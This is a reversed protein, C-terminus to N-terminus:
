PKKEKTPKSQIPKKAFPVRHLPARLTQHIWRLLPMTALGLHSGRRDTTISISQVARRDPWLSDIMPHNPMACSDMWRLNPISHLHEINRKELVCGPSFKHLREDYAIKWAFGVDNTLLNCKMAVPTGNLQLSLMDLKQAAFTARLMETTFGQNSQSQRLATGTRGKWGRAELETFANLWRDIDDNPQLVHLTLTGQESLRNELRTVSHRRVGSWRAFYAEASSSPQFLARRHMSRVFYQHSNEQLFQILLQQFPGEAQVCDFHIWLPAAPENAFHQWFATITELGVENRILPTTLFAQPYRWTDQSPLRTQKQDKSVALPMLGCLIPEGNPRGKPKSYALLVRLNKEGYHSLAALLMEPEFFINPEMATEILRRWAPMWCELEESSSVECVQISPDPLDYAPKAKRPTPTFVERALSPM